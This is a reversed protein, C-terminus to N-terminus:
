RGVRKGSPPQIRRRQQSFTINIAELLRDRLGPNRDMAMHASERWTIEKAGAKVAKARVSKTVDYHLKWPEDEHQAWRRALGISAAFAHLEEPTDAMMHCWIAPRMGPIKAPMYMDDVYISM